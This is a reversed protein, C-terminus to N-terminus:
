QGGTGFQCGGLSFQNFGQLRKPLGIETDRKTHNWDGEM